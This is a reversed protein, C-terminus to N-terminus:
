TSYPEGRTVGVTKMAFIPTEFKRPTCSNAHNETIKAGPTEYKPSYKEDDVAQGLSAIQVGNFLARFVRASLAWRDSKIIKKL